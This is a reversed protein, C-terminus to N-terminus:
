KGKLGMDLLEMADFQITYIELFFAYTREEEKLRGQGLENLM